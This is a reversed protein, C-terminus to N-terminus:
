GQSQSRRRFLQRAGGGMLGLGLLWQAILPLAPVPEPMAAAEVMVPFTIEAVNSVTQSPIFSSGMMRATATVTVKSEGTMDESATLTFSEGSASASVTNGEVAAGFSATYGEATGFLEGTMITVTAGPAVAGGLAAMIAEYAGDAVFVLPKTNDTVNISFTGSSTGSGYDKDGTVDLSVMLAEMGIDEDTVAEITFPGVVTEDGSEEGDSIKMDTPMIRADLVQSGALTPRVTFDEDDPDSIRDDDENVVTVYLFAKGGEAVMTVVADTEEGDEDAGNAEGTIDTPLQHIDLVTIAESTAITKNSVASGTVASLTIVDDTRNKDNEPTKVTIDLLAKTATLSVSDKPVGYGKPAKLFLKVDENAPRNPKAKLTVEFNADEVIEDDDSKVEFEYTQTEDDVIEGTFNGKLAGADTVDPVAMLMATIVFEEDVADLDDNVLLAISVEDQDKNVFLTDSGLLLDAPEGGAATLEAEGKLGGDGGDPVEIDLTIKAATAATWDETLTVTVMTSTGENVENDSNAADVKVSEIGIDEGQSSTPAGVSPLNITLSDGLAIPGQAPDTELPVFSFTVSSITNETLDKATIALNLGEDAALASILGGEFVGDEDPEEAAAGGVTITIPGDEGLADAPAVKVMLTNTATNSLEGLAADLADAADVSMNVNTSNHANLTVSTPAFKATPADQADDVMVRLVSNTVPPQGDSATTLTLNYAENLWNQANTEADATITLAIEDSGEDFTLSGNPSVMLGTPVNLTITGYVATIVGEGSKTVKVVVGDTDAETVTVSTTSFGTLTQALATGPSAALLVIAALATLWYGKRMFTSRAGNM